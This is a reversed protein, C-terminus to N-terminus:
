DQEEIDMLYGDTKCTACGKFHGGEDEMFVLDDDNKFVEDCMNCIVKSMLRAGTQQNVM